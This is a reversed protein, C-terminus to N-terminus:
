ANQGAIIGDILSAAATVLDLRNSLGQMSEVGVAALCSNVQAVTIKGAGQAAAARGILQVYQARLDPDAASPPPPATTAAPAATVPPAPVLQPGPAAMVRKLEATVSDVQTKDVGRKLRWTGDANKAKSSAHIRGDWPIGSADLDNFSNYMTVATSAGPIAPPATSAATNAVPMPPPPPPPIEVHPAKVDVIGTGTASGFIAAPNLETIEPSDGDEYGAFALIMGAFTRAKEKTLSDLDIVLQTAM